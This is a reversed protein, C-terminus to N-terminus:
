NLPAYRRAVVAQGEPSQTWAVFARLAGEPEGLGAIFLTTRLPYANAAVTEPTPLVDDIALVAVRADLWGLSVYGISGPQRAALELMAASSPAVLATSTTRREGMVLREFEARTGSGDERSIVAIEQDSGGLAQWNTIRGQYIERLHAQTLGSVGTDPHAIVAVADQGIPAGWLASTEPPPLHNTVFYADPEQLLLDIVSEYSASRVDFSVDPTRQAYARILDNLLPLTASTAYLRLTVAHTTPTSAPLVPSSCSALVFAMTVLARRTRQM